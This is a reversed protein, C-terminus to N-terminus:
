YNTVLVEVAKGKDKKQYNCNKYNYNLIHVNYKKSWEILLENRKGKSEVVNSLAFKINNTNLNDLLFFLQKEKEENWGNQENYSACTILYPPDCYVFDNKNLKDPKLKTFDNNTFNINITKLCDVFSTFKSKLTPNFSSRDKGFPMNYQGNRNYRIQNNFAYCVLTYFLDWTKEKSSNYFDRLELYGEKNTKSLRYTNILKEIKEVM